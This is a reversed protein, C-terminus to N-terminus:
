GKGGVVLMRACMCVWVHCTFVWMSAVEHVSVCGICAGLSGCSLYLCCTQVCLCVGETRACCQFPKWKGRLGERRELQKEYAICGHASWKKEEGM